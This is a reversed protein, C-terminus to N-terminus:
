YNPELTDSTPRDKLTTDAWHSMVPLRFKSKCGKFTIDVYKYSGSCPQKYRTRLLSEEYSSTYTVLTATKTGDQHLRAAPPRGSTDSQDFDVTLAECQDQPWLALNRISLGYTQKETM